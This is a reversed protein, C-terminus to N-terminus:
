FERCWEYLSPDFLLSLETTEQKQDLVNFHRCDEDDILEPKYPAELRCMELSKWCFHEVDEPFSKKFWIREKVEGAGRPGSGLRRFANKELFDHILEQSEWSVREPLKPTSEMIDEYLKRNESDRFPVEGMLMEYLFIGLCWWDVGFSQIGGTILEPALYEPTGCLSTSQNRKKAFGFDTVKAYGNDAILVNEPKLDRYVINFSHIHELALVICATYFRSTTENFTTERRLLSWLEGGLVKELLFYVCTEDQYTAFLKVTFPSDLLFMVRRENKMHEMQGSNIVKNKEVLKLAFVEKKNGKVAKVLVVHGFNGVGAVALPQFDDLKYSVRNEYNKPLEEESTFEESYESECDSTDRDENRKYPGLLIDYDDKILKLCHVKSLAKVSNLTENKATELMFFDGEGIKVNRCISISDRRDRILLAKGKLIVYFDNETNQQRSVITQGSEFIVERCAQTVNTLEHPRLKSFLPIISLFKQWDKVKNKTLRKILARINHFHKAEMVWVRTPEIARLTASRKMNYMLAAEGVTEEANITAKKMPKKEPDDGCEVLVELQGYQVLFFADGIEGQKVLISGSKLDRTYMDKIVEDIARGAVDDSEIGKFLSCEILVKRLFKTILKPKLCHTKYQPSKSSGRIDGWAEEDSVSVASIIPTRRRHIEIRRNGCGPSLSVGPDSAVTTRAKDWTQARIREYKFRLFRNAQWPDSMSYGKLIDESCIISSRMIDDAGAFLGPNYGVPVSLNTSVSCPSTYNNIKADPCLSTRYKNFKAGFDSCRSKEESDTEDFRNPRSFRNSVFSLCSHSNKFAGATDFVFKRKKPLTFSQSQSLQEQVNSPSLTIRYKPSHSAYDGRYFFVHQSQPSSQWQVNSAKTPDDQTTSDALEDDSEVLSEELIVPTSGGNSICNGM